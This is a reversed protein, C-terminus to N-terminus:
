LPKPPTAPLVTFILTNWGPPPPEGTWDGRCSGRGSEGGKLTVYKIGKPWIQNDKIFAFEVIRGALNHDAAAFEVKVAGILRSVKAELSGDLSLYIPIEEFEDAAAADAYQAAMPIEDFQVCTASWLSYTGPTLQSLWAQGGADLRTLTPFSLGSGADTRRARVALCDWDVHQRGRAQCTVLLAFEGKDDFRPSVFLVAHQGEAHGAHRHSVTMDPLFGAAEALVDAGHITKAMIEAESIGFVPPTPSYWLGSSRAYTEGNQEQGHNYELV